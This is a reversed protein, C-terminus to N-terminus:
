RLHDALVATLKENPIQEAKAFLAAKSSSVIPYPTWFAASKTGGSRFSLVLRWSSNPAAREAVPSVNWVADAYTVVRWAM